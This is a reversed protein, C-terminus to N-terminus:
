MACIAQLEEEDFGVIIRGDVDIVPVKLQNSKEIMEQRNADDSVNKEEYSINNREFFEKAMKCYVCGDTTYVIIKM